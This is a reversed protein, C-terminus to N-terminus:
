QRALCKGRHQLWPYACYSSDQRLQVWKQCLSCFVRNPEVEGILRDARLTAARQEANRRRSEHAPAYNSPNLDHFSSPSGLILPFRPPHIAGITGSGPTTQSTPQAQSQTTRPSTPTTSSVSERRPVTEAQADDSIPQPQQQQQSELTHQRVLFRIACTLKISFMISHSEKRCSTRLHARPGNVHLVINSGNRSPKFTTTPLSVLGNTACTAYSGNPTLSAFTLIKPSCITGRRSLTYM